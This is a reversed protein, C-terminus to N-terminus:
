RLNTELRPRKSGQREIKRKLKRIAEDSAEIFKKREEILKKLEFDLHDHETIEDM